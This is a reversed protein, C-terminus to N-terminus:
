GRWAEESIDEVPGPPTLSGGANAVLIDIPGLRQEVDRRIADVDEAKTVDGAVQIAKGGAGEIALRRHPHIGTVPMATTTALQPSAESGEGALSVSSVTVQTQM